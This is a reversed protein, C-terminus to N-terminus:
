QKLQMSKKSFSGDAISEMILQRDLLWPDEYQSCLEMFKKWNFGTLYHRVDESAGGAGLYMTLLIDSAFADQETLSESYPYIMGQTCRGKVASDSYLVFPTACNKYVEISLKYSGGSKGGGSQVASASKKVAATDEGFFAGDKEAGCLLGDTGIWYLVAGEPMTFAICEKDSFFSCSSLLVVKLIIVAGSLAYLMKYFTKM